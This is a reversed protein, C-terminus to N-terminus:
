NYIGTLEFAADIVEGTADFFDLWELKKAAALAEELSSAKIETTVLADIKAQVNYSKLKSM